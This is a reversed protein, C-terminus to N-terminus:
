KGNSEEEESVSYSEVSDDNELTERLYDFWIEDSVMGEITTGHWFDIIVKLM